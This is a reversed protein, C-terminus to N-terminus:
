VFTYGALCSPLGHAVIKRSFGIQHGCNYSCIRDRGKGKRLFLLCRILTAPFDVSEVHNPSFLPVSFESPHLVLVNIQENNNEFTM